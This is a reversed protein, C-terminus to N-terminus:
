ATLQWSSRQVKRPLDFSIASRQDSAGVKVFGRVLPTQCCETVGNAGFKTVQEEIADFGVVAADCADRGDVM